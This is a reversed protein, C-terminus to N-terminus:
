FSTPKTANTFQQTRSGYPFWTSRPHVAAGQVVLRVALFDVEVTTQTADPGDDCLRLKLTGNSQVYSSWLNTLNVALLSWQTTLNFSSTSNFGTNEYNGSTWNYAKLLCKEQNDDARIRLQIEVSLFEELPYTATDLLFVNEIELMQGKPKFEALDIKLDFPTAVDKLGTIRMKWHGTSNKFHTPNTTVTKNKVEDINPTESSLYNIYGEGSTAYTGSTYNYLQITVNVSSTTWASEVKWLLQTWDYTDSSGIFEVECKHERVGSTVIQFEVEFSEYSTTGVNNTVEIQDGMTTGNWKTLVLDSGDDLTAIWLKASGVGRPDRKVQIWRQDTTLGSYQSWENETSPNWGSEPTWIKYSIPDVNRDGAVAIFRSGSPEWDGDLARSSYTELRSDLRTATEWQAGNWVCACADYARDLSLLMLRNSSPDAKLVLWYISSTAYANIDFTDPTSWDNTYRSWAITIEQQNSWSTGNWIMAVADSNTRDLYILGVENAGDTPKTALEVYSVTIHTSHGTDDIYEEPSWNAGDWIRYSLDKTGDNETNGYVLLARGSEKEYTIDFPRRTGSPASTWVRGL